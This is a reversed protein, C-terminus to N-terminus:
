GAWSIMALSQKTDAVEVWGDGFLYTMGYGNEDTGMSFDPNETIYVGESGDERKWGESLLTRQAKSSQDATITSWGFLQGHDSAVSYDAWFCLVGTTLELDGIAFPEQEFTWGVDAFGKVASDSIITECSPAADPTAPAPSEEKDVPEM